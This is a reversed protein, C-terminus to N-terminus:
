LYVGEKLLTEIENLENETAEIGELHIEEIETYGKLNILKSTMNCPYGNFHAYQEPLALNPYTIVLHPTQVGMCGSNGSLSGGRQASTRASDVGSGITDMVQNLVPGAGAAGAVGGAVTIATSIAKLPTASTGKDTLSMTYGCNGTFQYRVSDDVKLAAVCAGTLLDITYTLDLTRGIVDAPNLQQYGIYPLFIKVDCEFDLHNNYVPEFYLIGCDVEVANQTVFNMSIPSGGSTPTVWGLKVTGTQQGTINVPLSMFNIFLDMFSIDILASEVVKYFATIFDSTYLYSGLTRLQAETPTYITYLDLNPHNLWGTARDLGIVDSSSELDSLTGHKDYAGSSEEENITTILATYDGINPLKVVCPNDTYYADDRGELHLNVFSYGINPTFTVTYSGDGNDVSTFTGASEDDLRVTLTYIIRQTLYGPASESDIIAYDGNIQDEIWVTGNGGVLNPTKYFTDKIQTSTDGSRYIPKSYITTLNANNQFMDTINFPDINYDVHSLDLVSYKTYEFFSQLSTAERFDAEVTLTMDAAGASYFVGSDAYKAGICKPLKVSELKTCSRFAYGSMWGASSTLPQVTIKSLDASVLRTCGSFMYDFRHTTFAAPFTMSELYTSSMFLQTVNISETPWTIGSLDVNSYKCSAFLNTIDTVESLDGSVTLTLGSAGASSFTSTSASIKGVVKPLKVTTLRTCGYFTGNMGTNTESYILSLDAYILYTCGSFALEMNSNSSDLSAQTAGSVPKVQTINKNNQFLNRMTSVGTSGTFESGSYYIINDDGILYYFMIFIGGIASNYM